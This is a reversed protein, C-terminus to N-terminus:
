GIGWATWKGEGPRNRAGYAKRESNKKGRKGKSKGKGNDLVEAEGGLGHDPNYYADGYSSQIYASLATIAENSMTTSDSRMYTIYGAEYLNQAMQMTQKPKFKM